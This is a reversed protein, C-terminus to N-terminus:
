SKKLVLFSPATNCIKKNRQRTKVRTYIFMEKKWSPYNKVLRGIYGM